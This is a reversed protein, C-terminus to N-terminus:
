RMKRILKRQSDFCEPREIGEEPQEDPWSEKDLLGTRRFAQTLIHDYSKSFDPRLYQFVSFNNSQSLIKSVGSIIYEIRDETKPGYGLIKGSRSVKEEPTILDFLPDDRKFVTQISGDNRVRGITEWHDANGSHGIIVVDREIGDQFTNLEIMMEYQYIKVTVIDYKTAAAIYGTIDADLYERTTSFLMSVGLDSTDIIDEKGYLTRPDRMDFESDYETKPDENRANCATQYTMLSDTYRLVFEPIKIAWNNYNKYTSSVKTMVYKSLDRRLSLAMSTKVKRESRQYKTDVAQLFSHILCSGDGITDFRVLKDKTWTAIVPELTRRAMNVEKGVKFRGLLNNKLIYEPIVLEKESEESEEIETVLRFSVAQSTDKLKVMKKRSTDWFEGIVKKDITYNSKDLIQYAKSDKWNAMTVLFEVMYDSNNRMFKLARSALDDQIKELFPPKATIRVDRKSYSELISPFKGKSGFYQDVEPFLSAYSDLTHNMPSAFLELDYKSTVSEPLAYQNGSSVDLCSYLLVLRTLYLNLKSQDNNPQSQYQRTLDAIDFGKTSVYERGMVIEDERIEPKIREYNCEDDFNDYYNQIIKEIDKMYKESKPIPNYGTTLEDQIKRYYKTGVNPIIPDGKGYTAHLILNRTIVNNGKNKFRRDLGSFVKRINDVTIYRRFDKCLESYVIDLPNESETSETGEVSPDHGEIHNIVGYSYFKTLINEGPNLLNEEDARVKTIKAGLAESLDEIYALYETQDQVISDDIHIYVDRGFHSDKGKWKGLKLKMGLSNKLEKSLISKNGPNDRLKQEVITGDMVFFLIEGGPKLVKRIIDVLKNFTKRNEWFFTLSLMFSIVDVSKEPIVDPIYDQLNQGYDEIIEVQYKPKTLKLRRRLEERNTENPEVAYLKKIDKYKTLDGGNGTGIDLVVSGIPIKSLLEKKIRNHYRRMLVLGKGRLTNETVPRHFLDWTDDVINRRNPGGKDPRTRKATLGFKSGPPNPSFEVVTGVDVFSGNPNLIPDKPDILEWHHMSYFKTGSWEVRRNEKEHMVYAVVNGDSGLRPELDVTLNEPQKWKCVDPYDKLNRKYIPPLQKGQWPDYPASTPIIMLGDTEYPLTQLNDLQQSMVEFFTYEDSPGYHLRRFKKVELHINKNVIQRAITAARKLRVDLSKNQLRGKYKSDSLCDFIYMVYDKNHSESIFRGSETRRRHEEPILEGEMIVDDYDHRPKSFKLVLNYEAPPFFFWMGIDTFAILKRVGDAKDTVSYSTNDNQVIGGLVLDETKLNRGQNLNDRDVWIPNSDKGNTLLLNTKVNLAFREPRTFVYRSSHVKRLLLSVIKLFYEKNDRDHGGGFEVELEYTNYSKDGKINKVRSLEVIHNKYKKTIRTTQRIIDPEPLKSEDRRKIKEETSVTFRVDYNYNDVDPIKRDGKDLFLKDKYIWQTRKKGNKNIVRKRINKDDDKGTWKTDTIEYEDYDKLVSERVRDYMLSNIHSFTKGYMKGIKVEVEIDKKDSAFDLVFDLDGRITDDMKSM